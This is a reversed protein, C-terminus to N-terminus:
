KRVAHVPRRDLLRKLRPALPQEVGHHLAAAVGTMLLMTAAVLLVHNVQDGLREFIIFGIHAHVLYLPYTLAGLVAFWPRGIRSTLKLAVALMIAFIAVIIVVVVPRHLDTHYRIGVRDAFGVGRYIANGLSIAVIALTQPTVGYRHILCLAMGAIFYHSFQTNLILDTAHPLLGAQFVFTAALWAWCFYTVRRATIGAWTLVLIMAYFRLEAWLTWYVVDVNEINPLSNFMTLNALYQPLSVPFRGQSLGVSVITTLTVAVWYAPYLRVARSIVFSRPSRDWASLLVVFGSITFFLDVGLYGYRAVVDAHPFRLDSLGGAYASFLYHYAMVSVAAVIRLLDIEHLRARSPEVAM